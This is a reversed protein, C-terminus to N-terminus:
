IPDLTISRMIFRLSENLRGLTRALAGMSRLVDANGPEISLAKQFENEAGEWDWDYYLKLEGLLRYAEGEKYNLTLAKVAAKRVKESGTYSDIWHWTAQIMLGNALAVWVRANSSDIALAQRYFEVAKAVNVSDRKAAFYNGQ